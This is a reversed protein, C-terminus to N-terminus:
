LGIQFMNIMKLKQSESVAQASIIDALPISCVARKGRAKSYSLECNTLRFHRQKLNQGFPKRGHTKKIM